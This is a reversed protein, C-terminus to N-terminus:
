VRHRGNTLAGVLMEAINRAYGEFLAERTVVLRWFLAGAVVDLAISRDVDERMEGRQIAREIIEGARERKPQEIKERIAKALATNRSMEAYLDPLIRRSLPRQLLAVSRRVYELLDLELSGQDDITVIRLGVERLLDLTLDEKSSWRRYLAGKGVGARRAVADMSLRAYGAKALETLASRLIANTKTTQFVAAGTPSRRRPLTAFSTEMMPMVTFLKRALSESSLYRESLEFSVGLKLM